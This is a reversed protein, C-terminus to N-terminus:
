AAGGYGYSDINNNTGRDTKVYTHRGMGGSKFRELLKQETCHEYETWENRPDLVRM